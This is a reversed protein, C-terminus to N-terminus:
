VQFTVMKIGMVPYTWLANHGQTQEERPSWRRECTQTLVMKMYTWLANQGKM